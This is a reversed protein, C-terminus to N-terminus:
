FSAILFNYFGGLFAFARHKGAAGDIIIELVEINIIIFGAYVFFHLIAPFPRTMMKTQGFAVRLMTRLRESKRDSRDLAQGLQINFIIQRINITFLVSAVIFLAIFIFNAIIM